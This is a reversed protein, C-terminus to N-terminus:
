INRQFLANVHILLLVATRRLVSVPSAHNEAFEAQARQNLGVKENKKKKKLYKARHKRYKVHMLVLLKAHPLCNRQNQTSTRGIWCFNRFFFGM